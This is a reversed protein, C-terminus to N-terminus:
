RQAPSQGAKKQGRNAAFYQLLLISLNDQGGYDLAQKIMDGAGYSLHRTLQSHNLLNSVGDSCLLYIDQDCGPGLISQDTFLAVDKGGLCNILNASSKRPYGGLESVTHDRSMLALEEDRYRYLRSNGIHLSYFIGDYLYLATLTTGLGSRIPCLRGEQLLAANVSRAWIEWYYQLGCVSLRAPLFDFASRLKELVMWSAVDGAPLGEMGDAVAWLCNANKCCTLGYRDDRVIHHDVLLADHNKELVKGPHCIAEVKLICNEM